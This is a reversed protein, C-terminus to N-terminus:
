KQKIFEEIQEMREIMKKEDEEMDELIAENDRNRKFDGKMIRKLEERDQLKIDQM